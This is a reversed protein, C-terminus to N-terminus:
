FKMMWSTASSVLWESDSLDDDSHNTEDAVEQIIFNQDDGRLQLFALAQAHMAEVVPHRDGDDDNM